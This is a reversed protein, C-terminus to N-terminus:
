SFGLFITELSLNSGLVELIYLLLTLWKVMINPLIIVAIIITATTTITITFKKKKLVQGYLYGM